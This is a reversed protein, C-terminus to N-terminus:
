HGRSHAKIQAPPHYEQRSHTAKEAEAEKRMQEIQADTLPECNSLPSGYWLTFAVLGTVCSLLAVTLFLLFRRM